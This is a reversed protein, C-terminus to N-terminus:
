SKGAEVGKESRGQKWEKDRATTEVVSKGGGGKEEKMDRRERQNM